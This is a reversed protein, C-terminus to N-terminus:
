WSLSHRVVYLCQCEYCICLRCASIAIVDLLFVMLKWMTVYSGCHGGGHMCLLYMIWLCIYCMHLQCTHMVFVNVWPSHLWTRIGINLWGGGVDVSTVPWGLYVHSSFSSHYSEVEKTVKHFHFQHFCM